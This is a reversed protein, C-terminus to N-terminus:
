FPVVDYPAEGMDEQLVLAFARAEEEGIDAESTLERGLFGSADALMKVPDKNWKRALLRRLARRAESIPKAQVAGGQGNAAAQSGASVGRAAARDEGYDYGSEGNAQKRISGYAQGAIENPAQGRARPWVRECFEKKEADPDPMDETPICFTQLLCYKAAYAMAKGISKDSNDAGEGVVTCSIASGDSHVFSYRVRLFTRTALGGNRLTFQESNRELVQPLIFIGNSALLPHLMNYVDDIGRYKYNMDGCRKSKSVAEIGRMVNAMAAYIGMGPAPVAAPEGQRMAAGTALVPGGPRPLGEGAWFAEVGSQRLMAEAEAQERVGANCEVGAGVDAAPQGTEMAQREGALAVSDDAGVAKKTEKKAM